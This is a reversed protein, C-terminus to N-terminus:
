RSANNEERYPSFADVKMGYLLVLCLLLLTWTEHPMVVCNWWWTHTVADPVQGHVALQQLFATGPVLFPIVLLLAIKAVPKSRGTFHTMCWCLPVAILAADYFRHYVPLLALISIAGLSLLEPGHV